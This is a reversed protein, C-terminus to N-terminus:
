HSKVWLIFIIIGALSGFIVDVWIVDASHIDETLKLHDIIGSISEKNNQITFGVCNISSNLMRDSHCADRISTLSEKIRTFNTDETPLLWQYNGNFPELMVLTENLNKEMNALTGANYSTWCMEVVQTIKYQYNFYRMGENVGIGTVGTAIGLILIIITMTNKNGM